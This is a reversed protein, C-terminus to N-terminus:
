KYSSFLHASLARMLPLLRIAGLALTHGPAVSACDPAVSGTNLIWNRCKFAMSDPAIWKVEVKKGIFHSSNSVCRCQIYALESHEGLCAHPWCVVTKHTGPSRPVPSARACHMNVNKLSACGHTTGKLCRMLWWRLSTTPKANFKDEMRKLSMM